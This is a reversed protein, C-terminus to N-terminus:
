YGATDALRFERDLMAKQQREDYRVTMWHSGGQRSLILVRGYIPHEAHTKPQEQTLEFAFKPDALLAGDERNRGEIGIVFDPFFGRGDSLVAQVSWAKHPLNRHWWRVVGAADADLLGAFATEWSNLGPPVARYVNLRSTVLPTDREMTQPVAKQAEYILEPHPALIVDLM